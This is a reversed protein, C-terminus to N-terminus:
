QNKYIAVRFNDYQLKKNAPNWLYVSLIDNANYFAPLNFYFEGKQIGSSGKYFDALLCSQYHKTKGRNATTVVVKIGTLDQSMFDFGVKLSLNNKSNLENVGVQYSVGFEILTDLKSVSSRFKESYMVQDFGTFHKNENKEFDTFENAVVQKKELQLLEEISKRKFGTSRKYVTIKGNGAVPEIVSAVIPYYRLVDSFLFQDQIVVYDWKSWFLTIAANDRNTQYVTYGKRNMMYLPINTSYADIVLMKSDAPIGIQDLFTAAGEFNKRTIEVRDDNGATYRERQNKRSDGFMFMMCIVSFFFFFLKRTETEISINKISLLFLLVVPVFLSDLFYYDHDFYQAAMLLFYLVAGGGVFFLNFWMAKNEISRTRRFSLFTLAVALVLLVLHWFTYYQLLWHDYIYQIIVIFESFSKAPLFKDLFMNGYVIGIHVNYRFYMGFLIFALLFAIVEQKVIKKQKIAVYSQQMVLGILFILFPLRILAALLFFLISWYFHTKNGETKYAHFFYYAIFVFAIAPVCPIFGAQYYTYLPSFFVFAVVVWSKLESQTMKKALLYLFTLGTISICITYLRFVIPSTTGFLKMLLAVIFENLPFDMRTVGDLTQLNFTAPHFIDFGNQLFQLAIAYRESQTWAHIFSPPLFITTRYLLASVAFLFLVLLLISKKNARNM